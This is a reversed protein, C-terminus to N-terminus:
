LLERPIHMDFMLFSTKGIVAVSTQTVVNQNTKIISAKRRAQNAPLRVKYENKAAAFDDRPTCAILRNVTM